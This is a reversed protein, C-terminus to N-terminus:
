SSVRFGGFYNYKESFLNYDSNTTEGYVRLDLYDGVSLDLIVGLQVPQQMFKYSSSQFKQRISISEDSGNKRLRLFGDHMNQYFEINAYIFYKGAKGSPVTFRDNSLDFANDTDFDETVFDVVIFAGSSGQQTSGGSRNVHFAPTNAEGFGTATGSNAFTVGSPVTFTDGSDGLTFATGSAPSIKNTKVEDTVTLGAGTPVTFTDGSDGMTVATGGSVPTIKNVEITSM